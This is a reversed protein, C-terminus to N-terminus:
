RHCFESDPHAYSTNIVDPTLNTDVAATQLHNHLLAM